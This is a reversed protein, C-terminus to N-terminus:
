APASKVSRTQPHVTAHTQAGLGYRGGGASANATRQLSLCTVSDYVAPVAM